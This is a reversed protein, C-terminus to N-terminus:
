SNLKCGFRKLFDRFRQIDAEDTLGFSEAVAALNGRPYATKCLAGISFTIYYNHYAMICSMKRDSQQLHKSGINRAISFFGQLEASQQAEPWDYSKTNMLAPAQEDVRESGGNGETVYDCLNAPLWAYLM